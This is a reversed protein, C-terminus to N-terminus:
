VVSKLTEHICCLNGAHMERRLFRSVEWRSEIRSINAAIWFLYFNYDSIVQTISVLEKARARSRITQTNLKDIDDIGTHYNEAGRPATWSGQVPLGMAM